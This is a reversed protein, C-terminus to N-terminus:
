KGSPLPPFHETMFPNGDNDEMPNGSADTQQRGDGTYTGAAVECQDFKWPNRLIMKITRSLGNNKYITVDQRQSEDTPTNPTIANQPKPKLPIQLWPTQM